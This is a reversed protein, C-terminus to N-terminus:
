SPTHRQRSQRIHGTVGASRATELKLNRTELEGATQPAAAGELTRSAEMNPRTGASAPVVVNLLLRSLHHHFLRKRTEEDHAPQPTGEPVPLGLFECFWALLPRQEEELAEALAEASPDRGPFLLASAIERWPAYAHNRLTIEGKAPITRWGKRTAEQLLRVSLFSKGVWAEGEVVAMGPEGNWARDLRELLTKTERERGVAQETGGATWGAKRREKLAFVALPEAKGKFKRTGLDDFGYVEQAKRVFSESACAQGMEAGQMLRAAFNVADGMVTYEWRGEGGVIGTFVRGSNLGAGVTLRPFRTRVAAFFDLAWQSALQEKKEMPNPAGFLLLATSGKDGMSIRNLRGGLRETIEMVTRFFADFLPLDFAERTYTFGTFKLFVPVIELLAGVQAKHGSAVLDHVERILYSSASAPFHFNSAPTFAATELKSNRTEPEAPADLIRWFGPEMEKMKCRVNQLKCKDGAFVIEGATAHHEADSTADVPAGAFVYDCRVTPDGVGALLCEGHAVGIKMKLAFRKVPTKINQFRPMECQMLRAARLARHLSDSKRREDSTERRGGSVPSLCAGAESRMHWDGTEPFFCLIADGGFKMVQGGDAHVVSIMAAFYRNLVDTLVEGGEAGLVSLAESMPTFGSVDAFLVAGQVWEMWPKDRDLELVLRPLFEGKMAENYGLRDPRVLRHASPSHGGEAAGAM